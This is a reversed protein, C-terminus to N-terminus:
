LRHFLIYRILILYKLVCTIQNRVKRQRKWIEGNSVAVNDRGLFQIPLSNTELKNFFAHSKPFNDLVHYFLFM